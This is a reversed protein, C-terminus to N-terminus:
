VWLAQRDKGGPMAIMDTNRQKAQYKLSTVQISSKGVHQAAHCLNHVVNHRNQAVELGHWACVYHSTCLSICCAAAYKKAHFPTLNHRHIDSM